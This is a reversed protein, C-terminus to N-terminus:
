AERIGSSLRNISM